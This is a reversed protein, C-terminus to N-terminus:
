NTRCREEGLGTLVAELEAIASEVPGPLQGSGAYELRNRLTVLISRAAEARMSLWGTGAPIVWRQELVAAGIELVLEDHGAPDARIEELLKRGWHRRQGERTMEEVPIEDVGRQKARACDWCDHDFRWPETIGYERAVEEGLPGREESHGCAYIAFKSM